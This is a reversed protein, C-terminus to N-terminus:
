RGEFTPTRKEVFARKAEEHDQTLSCRTQHEAEMALMSEFGATEAALLNAKIYGLAVRPGAAIQSALAHAEEILAADPVRRAVIGLSEAEEAEVIRGTYYMERARDVGILRQLTHSGGFDGSLGIRIFSAGFRASESAIRLDCALAIGLGAGMAPGNVAAITVKPMTRLQRAVQQMAMLRDVRYDFDRPVPNEEMDKVDGGVCFARGAGTVLIVGLDPRKGLERLDDALARMMQETVANLRDPRNFTVTAVHDETEILYDSM